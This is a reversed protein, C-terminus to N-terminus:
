GEALLAQLGADLAAGDEGARSICVGICRVRVGLEAGMIQGQDDAAPGGELPAARHLHFHLLPAFEKEVEENCHAVVHNTKTFEHQHGNTMKESIM